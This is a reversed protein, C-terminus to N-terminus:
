RGVRVSKSPVLAEKGKFETCDQDYSYRYSGVAASSTVSLWAESRAMM